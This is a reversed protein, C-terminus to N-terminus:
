ISGKEMASEKAEGILRSGSDMARIYKQWAQSYLEYIKTSGTLLADLDKANTLTYPTDKLFKDREDIKDGWMKVSKVIKDSLLNDMEVVFDYHDAWFNVVIQRKTPEDDDRVTNHKYVGSTGILYEWYIRFKRDDGHLNAYISNVPDIDLAIAWMISSSKAKEKSKGEEYLKKFLPVILFQPNEVWFNADDRFQKLVNQM